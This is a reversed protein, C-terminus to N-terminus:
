PRSFGHRAFIARAQDQQLFAAFREADGDAAKTLALPYVIKPHSDAPFTAVPSIDKQSAADTSYVIGYPAEGRQVLALAGRVDGARALRPELADWQNLATLAKKAYQGAPVHDPDGVALRGGQLLDVLRTTALDVPASGAPAVLVLTNGLYDIRGGPKLAGAKELTDAWDSNASLFIQAPAGQEIQKALTSSSGFSTVVAIGTQQRFAAAAETMAETTSAAAFVVVDARAGHNGLGIVAAAILSLFLRRLM